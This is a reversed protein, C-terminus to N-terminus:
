FFVKGVKQCLPRSAKWSADKKMNKLLQLNRHARRTEMTEDSVKLCDSIHYEAAEPELVKLLTGFPRGPTIAATNTIICDNNRIMVDYNSCSLFTFARQCLCCLNEHPVYEAPLRRCLGAWVAMMSCRDTKMFVAPTQLGSHCHHGGTWSLHWTVDPSRHSGIVARQLYTVMLKEKHCLHQWGMKVGTHHLWWSCRWFWLILWTLSVSDLQFQSSYTKRWLCSHNDGPEWCGLEWDSNKM